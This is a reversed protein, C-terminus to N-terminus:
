PHPDILEDVRVGVRVGKYKSGGRGPIGAGAQM